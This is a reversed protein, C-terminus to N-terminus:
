SGAGTSGAGAGGPGGALERCQAQARQFVPSDPDLGSGPGIDVVAGGDESFSPDPFDVGHERMCRAHALAQQHFERAQEPSLQPPELDELHRRCRQEATRLRSSPRAGDAGPAQGDGPGAILVGNEDTRPDPMDVGNARMCRAFAIAADRAGAARDGGAGGGQADQGCAGLGAALATTALLMPIRRTM